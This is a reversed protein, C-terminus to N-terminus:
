GKVSTSSFAIAMVDEPEAGKGIEGAIRGERMVLTRDSMGVLEPLDSSILLVGLGHVVLNDILHHIEEKAGIDVGSTPEELILVKPETALVRAILAKQQNGGSLNGIALDPLLPKVNLQTMAQAAAQRQAARRVFGLSAYRRATTLTINSILTRFSFIGQGGRDGPLYGVGAEQRAWPTAPVEAGLISLSGGTQPHLGAICQALESRGAGVLGALGVIEGAHVTLDVDEFAEGGCLGRLQLVPSGIATEQRAYLSEVSRGVMQRIVWAEDVEDARAVAATVGDRLVTIEDALRFVEELRHTIYVVAVGKQKSEILLEHLSRLEQDNLVSGPEDLILIRAGRLLARAIEVQQATAKSLSGLRASLPISMQLREFLEAAQVRMTQWSVRGGKHEWSGLYLNELVSLDPALSTEQYVVAVGASTAAHPNRFRTEVGDLTIAGATPQHAGAIIKILTSKGAGNEGLLANIEGAYLAFDVSRLAQVGAFNKAIGTMTLVPDPRDAM